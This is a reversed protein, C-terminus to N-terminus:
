LNLAQEIAARLEDPRPPKVLFAAIDFQQSREENKQPDKGTLVIVPVKEHGPAEGWRIRQVLDFGDMGPMMIDTIILDFPKEVEFLMKLAMEGNLAHKVKGPGMGDLVKVLVNRSFMGDEVVLISIDAFSKEAV